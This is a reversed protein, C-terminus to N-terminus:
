TKNKHDRQSLAFFEHDFPLQAADKMEM